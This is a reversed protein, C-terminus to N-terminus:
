DQMAQGGEACPATLRVYRYRQHTQRGAATSYRRHVVTYQVNGKDQGCAHSKERVCLCLRMADAQAGGSPLTGNWTTSVKDTSNAFYAVVFFSHTQEKIVNRKGLFM